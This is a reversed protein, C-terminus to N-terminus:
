GRRVGGGERYGARHDPLHILVSIRRQLKLANPCLGQRGNGMSWVTAPAPRTCAQQSAALSPRGPRRGRGTTSLGCATQCSPLPHRRKHFMVPMGPAASCSYAPLDMLGPRPQLSRSRTTAALWSFSLNRGDDIRAPMPPIGSERFWCRVPRLATSATSAPTGQRPARRVCIVAQAERSGHRYAAVGCWAGPGGAVGGGMGCLAPGRSSGASRETTWCSHRDRLKRTKSAAALRQM